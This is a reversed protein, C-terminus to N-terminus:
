PYAKGRPATVSVPMEFSTNVDLVVVEGLHFAYVPGVGLDARGQQSPSRHLAARATKHGVIKTVFRRHVDKGCVFVAIVRGPKMRFNVWWPLRLGSPGRTLMMGACADSWILNFVRVSWFHNQPRVEFTKTGAVIKVFYRRRIRFSVRKPGTM